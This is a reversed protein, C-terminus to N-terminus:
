KNRLFRFLDFLFGAGVGAWLIIELITKLNFAVGIYFLLGAGRAILGPTQRAFFSSLALHNENKKWIGWSLTAFAMSLGLIWLANSFLLFWDIM